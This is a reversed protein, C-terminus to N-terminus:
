LRVLKLIQEAIEVMRENGVVPLLEKYLAANLARGARAAASPCRM